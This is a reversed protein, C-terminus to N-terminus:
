AVTGTRQALQWVTAPPVNAWVRQVRKWTLEPARVEFPERLGYTFQVLHREPHALLFEEILAVTPMLVESPLSRFPLASVAISRAPATVFPEPREHLCGDYVKSGSYLRALERAMASDFEFISLRHMGHDQVLQHTIAGSGAGLEFIRDYGRAQRSMAAALHRSSPVVAGVLAPERLYRLLFRASM